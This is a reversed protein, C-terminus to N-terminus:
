RIMQLTELVALVLLTLGASLLLSLACGLRSSFFVFMRRWRRRNSTTGAGHLDVFPEVVGVFAVRRLIAALYSSGTSACLPM